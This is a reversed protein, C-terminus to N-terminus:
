EKEKATNVAKLLVGTNLIVVGQVWEDSGGQIGRGVKAVKAHPIQEYGRTVADNCVWTSSVKKLGIGM